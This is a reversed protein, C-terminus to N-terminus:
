RKKFFLGRIGNWVVAILAGIGLVVMLQEICNLEQSQQPIDNWYIITKNSHSAMVEETIRELSAELLEPDSLDIKICKMKNSRYVAVNADSLNHTVFVEFHIPGEESDVKLDSRISQFVFERVPESYKVKRNNAIVVENHSELLQVALDHLATDRGGLCVSDVKHRFHWDNKQGQVPTLEKRCEVCEFGTRVAKDVNDIHVLNSTQHIRAIAITASM